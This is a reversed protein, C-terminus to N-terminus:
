LQESWRLKARLIHYYDYGPPHILRLHKPHQRIVIRDEDLLDINDQGDFSVQGSSRNHGCIRISIQSDSAVVLPRNSLTHPCIPVLAIADLTPHLIPGGGSLAYATSGTPTCVVLGDARQINVYQGNICTEFEIMRVVDRVHLTVDNMAYYSALAQNDRLIEAKLLSRNEEIFDGSLVQELQQPIEEPSVDVLFGLRGLNIGLVPVNVDVLSRAANLFTGDGGIVIALDCQSTLTSRSVAEIGSTEAYGAASEDLVIELNRDQLLNILIDLTEKQQIAPQKVILGIRQFVSM